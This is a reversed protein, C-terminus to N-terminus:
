ENERHTRSGSSRQSASITWTACNLAGGERALGSCDLPVIALGSTHEEIVRCALDDEARGYGPVVVLGRVMLFNVYCGVASPIEGGRAEEPRYPLEVRELGARRLISTLRKGYRPAVGSYDNVVVLGSDLFRIVGDAHGVVDYPESPIVILDDVGLLDKLRGILADRGSAPNERYLKDTLICRSGRGVLNGGDLVIASDVCREVEPIPGIDDPRTILREHGRLYEPGYCFRVFEGPAIQVPMYDRCWIDRTGDIVRLPIGHGALIRRLGDVLAPFRGEILDSVYVLDAQHDAIM